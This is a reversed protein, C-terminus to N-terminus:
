LSPLCLTHPLCHVWPGTAKHAHYLSDPGWMGGFGLAVSGGSATRHRLITGDVRPIDQQLMPRCVDQATVRQPLLLTSRQTSLVRAKSTKGEEEVLHSSVHDWRFNDGQTRIGSNSHSELRVGTLLFGQHPTTERKVRSVCSKLGILASAINQPGFRVVVM